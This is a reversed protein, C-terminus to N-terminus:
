LYLKKISVKPMKKQLQPKPKLYEFIKWILLQKPQSLSDNSGGWWLILSTLLRLSALRDFFTLRDFDGVNCASQRWGCIHKNTKRGKNKGRLATYLAYNPCVPAAFIFSANKCLICQSVNLCVQTASGPMCLTKLEVNKLAKSLHRLVQLHMQTSTIILHYISNQM